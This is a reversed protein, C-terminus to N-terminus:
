KKKRFITILLFVSIILLFGIIILYNQYQHMFENVRDFLTKNKPYAQFPSPPQPKFFQTVNQAIGNKGAVRLQLSKSNGFVRRRTDTKPLPIEVFIKKTKKKIEKREVHTWAITSIVSDSPITQKKNNTNATKELGNKLPFEVELFLKDDNRLNMLRIFEKRLEIANLIEKKDLEVAGLSRGDRITIIIIEEESQEPIPVPLYTHYYLRSTDPLTNLTLEITATEGARFEPAFIEKGKGKGVLSADYVNFPARYKEYDVHFLVSQIEDFPIKETVAYFIRAADFWFDFYLTSELNKPNFTYLFYRSIPPYHKFKITQHIILTNQQNNEIIKRDKNVDAYTNAIIWSGLYPLFTNLALPVPAVDLHAIDKRKGMYNMTFNAPITKPMKGLKGQIGFTGDFEITGFYASNRNSAPIKYSNMYNASTTIVRGKDFPLETNGLGFFDHGFAYVTKNKVYTVTGNAALDIDGNIIYVNISSGPSMSDVATTDSNKVYGNISQGMPQIEFYDPLDLKEIVMKMIQPDRPLPLSLIFKGYNKSNNSSSLTNKKSIMKEIPTVGAVPDKDFINMVFAIAGINKGDIFLPSGSMGAAVGIHELPYLLPGGSLRAFITPSSKGGRPIYTKDIIEFDFTDVETGKFVTIGYGKMGPKIESFPMIDTQAYAHSYLFVAILASFIKKM